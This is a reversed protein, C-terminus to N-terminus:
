GAIGALVGRMYSFSRQMGPLPDEGNIEYELMVHGQYNMQRLLKFIAVIPMKGDGVDCQSKSVKLDKLDKIHMDLLRPGALKMEELVDKGTRVTHGVDICLGVRPDMDKIVKLADSPAPFVKDEPGHNHVAVPINYQKVFREIRVLSQPTAGIVMMPMGCAKAYEFYFKVDDDDDKTMYITGGGAIKLGAKLFDNKGRELEQPTSRYPLHFEKINIAQLQLQKTYQICLRRGFERFSYSAVGLKIDAPPAAAAASELRTAALAAGAAAFLSRRSTTTPM